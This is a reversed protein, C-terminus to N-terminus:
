SKFNTILTKSAEVDPKIRVQCAQKERKKKCQLVPENSEISSLVEKLNSALHVGLFRPDWAQHVALSFQV